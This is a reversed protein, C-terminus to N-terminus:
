GLSPNVAEWYDKALNDSPMTQQGNHIECKNNHNIGCMLVLVTVHPFQKIIILLTLVGAQNAQENGEEDLETDHDDVDPKYPVVDDVNV